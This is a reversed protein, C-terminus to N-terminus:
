RIQEVLRIGDRFNLLNDVQYYLRKDKVLLCLNDQKGECKWVGAFTGPM